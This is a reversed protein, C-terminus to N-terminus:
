GFENDPRIKNCGEYGFGTGLEKNPERAKGSSFDVWLIKGAYYKAGM